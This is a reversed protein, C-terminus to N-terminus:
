FLVYNPSIQLLWIPACVCVKRRFPPIYRGELRWGEGVGESEIERCVFMGEEKVSGHEPMTHVAFVYPEDGPVKEVRVRSFVRM